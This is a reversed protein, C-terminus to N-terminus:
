EADASSSSLKESEAIFAFPTAIQGYCELFDAGRMLLLEEPPQKKGDFTGCRSLLAAARYNDSNEAKAAHAMRDVAVYDGALPERIEVTEFSVFKDAAIKEIKM